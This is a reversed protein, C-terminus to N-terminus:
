CGSRAKEKSSQPLGYGMTDSLCDDIRHFCGSINNYFNCRNTNSPLPMLLRYRSLVNLSEENNRWYGPLVTLKSGGEECLLGTVNRCPLCITRDNVEKTLSYSNPPCSSCMESGSPIIEGADCFKFNITVNTNTSNFLLCQINSQITLAISEGPSSTFKDAFCFLGNTSSVRFTNNSTNSKSRTPEIQLYYTENDANIQQGFHDLAYFPLGRLLLSGGRQNIYTINM